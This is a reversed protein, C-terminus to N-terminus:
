SPFLFLQKPSEGDIQSVSAVVNGVSSREIREEAPSGSQRLSFPNGFSNRVQAVSATQYTKEWATQLLSDASSWSSIAQDAHFVNEADVFRALYASYLDRQASVGCDCHHRRDSLKKKKIRGCHCTQSLKTKRTNMEVVKASASEAKRKLRGIFYGPANRSVSKGFLGKQWGKYSLEEFHFSRGKKLLQNVLTGHSTKRQSALKRESESVQNRTKLYRKSNKWTKKGKKITGNKEYNTPNNARRQRDLKRQLTRKELAKSKLEPCFPKLEASEKSVIAISSPGLDLGVTGKRQCVGPKRPKQYPKGQLVLQAYFHWEGRLKRRLLRVYKVRKKLSYALLPDDKKIKAKLKLGLCVLQNKRWKLGSKNSKGEISSLQFKGKFRVRKAKRYWIKEFTEIKSSLIVRPHSM